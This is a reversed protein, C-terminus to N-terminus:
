IYLCPSMGDFFGFILFYVIGFIMPWHKVYYMQIGLLLSTSFMVTAVAFGYANTLNALNSFAAVVVITAIMLAWNVAPIYVQGQITESTYLMRLPPFAKSNIVQQVLSFTATILAQSAILQFPNAFSANIGYVKVYQRWFPLCSCSGLFSILVSVFSFHRKCWGFYLDTSPDRSPTISFM